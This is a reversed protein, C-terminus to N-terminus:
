DSIENSQRRFIYLTDQPADRARFAMSPHKWNDMKCLNYGCSQVVTELKDTQYIYDTRSIRDETEAIAFNAAILGDPSLCSKAATLFVVLTEIPNHTFVSQAIIIDVPGFTAIEESKSIYHLDAANNAHYDTLRQAAVALANQSIDAGIYHGCTMSCAFHIGTGATGCGFDLLRQTGDFGTAKVLQNYLPEGDQPTNTLSQGSLKRIAARLQMVRRYHAEHHSPNYLKSLLWEGARELYRYM